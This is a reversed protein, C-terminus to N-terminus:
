RGGIRNYDLAVSAIELGGPLDLHKPVGSFDMDQRIVQYTGHERAAEVLVTYVGPKVPKGQQDKGDWTLTYRGAARTASSVSALINTGEALTRLRDSRSWARLDPLWRPKELWLALTRVPYKDKDEIWVAVYPRRAGFGPRALELTVTLQFEPNWAQEAAYLTAVPNPMLPRGPAPVELDRWGASEIRGGDTLLILFEAGPVGLALREGHEPTLVCLATALAGADVADDAIVTASLVHGTPEGSRPDVIHSYHRDGIDFGRRYGGSTAVARGEITLRTLPAANDASARPDRVAVTETWDGRVVIDGGINVVIGTAGAALGASAARDVIYSKTFSNLVLPTGSLHTAISAVPDVAWHVQQIAAVAAALEASEPRRGEAAARKWIRSVEEVSPDLAGGTRVRWADFLSLVEALEASVRTAVGQTAFWRSFESAPDYSSLIGADHQISALVATEAAHAETESAAVITLDM